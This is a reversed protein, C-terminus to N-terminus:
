QMRLHEDAVAKQKVRAQLLHQLFCAATCKLVPGSQNKFLWPHAEELCMCRGSGYNFTPVAGLAFRGGDELATVGFGSFRFGGLGRVRFGSGQFGLAGM